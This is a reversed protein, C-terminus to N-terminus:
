DIKEKLKKLNAEDLFFKVEGTELDVKAKVEVGIQLLKSSNAVLKLPISGYTMTKFVKEEM